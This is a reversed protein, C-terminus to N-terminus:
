RALFEIRIMSSSASRGGSFGGPREGERIPWRPYVDKPAPLIEVVLSQGQALVLLSTTEWLFGEFREVRADVDDSDFWCGVALVESPGANRFSAM